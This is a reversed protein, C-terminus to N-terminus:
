CIADVEWAFLVADDQFAQRLMLFPDRVDLTCLGSNHIEDVPAAASRVLQGCILHGSDTRNNIKHCRLRPLIIQYLNFELVATRCACLEVTHDLSSNSSKTVQSSECSTNFSPCPLRSRSCVPLPFPLDVRARIIIRSTQHSMDSEHDSSKAMDVTCPAVGRHRSQTKPDQTVEYRAICIRALELRDM